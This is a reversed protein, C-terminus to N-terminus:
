WVPPCLRPYFGAPTNPGRSVGSNGTVMRFLNSSHCPRTQLQSKDEQGAPSSNACAGTFSYGPMETSVTLSELRYKTRRICSPLPSSTFIDTNYKHWETRDPFTVHTNTRLDCRKWRHRIRPGRPHTQNWHPEGPGNWTLQWQYVNKNSALVKALIKKQRDFKWSKM